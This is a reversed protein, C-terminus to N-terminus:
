ELHTQIGRVSMSRAYLSLVNQDFPPRRRVHKAVLRPAFTGTRDRATALPTADDETPVPKPTTGNRQGPQDVPKAEGPAYGLHHTLEGGLMREMLAKKMQRCLAEVDEASQADGILADLAAPDFTHETGPAPKGKRSHAM